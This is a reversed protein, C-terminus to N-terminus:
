QSDKIVSRSAYFHLARDRLHPHPPLLSQSPCAALNTERQTGSVSPLPLACFPTHAEEGGGEVEGSGAWHDPGGALLGTGVEEFGEAHREFAQPM